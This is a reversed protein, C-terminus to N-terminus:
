YQFHRKWYYNNGQVLQKVNRCDCGTKDIWVIMALDFAIMEAISEAHQLESQQLSCAYNEPPQPGNKLHM